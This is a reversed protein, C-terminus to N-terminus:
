LLDKREYKKGGVNLEILTNLNVMRYDEKNVDFVTLLDYNSPEYSMGSGTVRTEGKWKDTKLRCLMTRENGDKKIFKVSFFNSKVLGRINQEINKSMTRKRNKEFNHKLKIYKGTLICPFDFTQIIFNQNEPNQPLHIHQAM